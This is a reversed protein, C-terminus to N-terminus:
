NSSVCYKFGCISCNPAYSIGCLSYILNNFLAIQYESRERSVRQARPISGETTPYERQEYPVRSAGRILSGKTTHSKSQEQTPSAVSTHTNRENTLTARKPLTPYERQENIFPANKINPTKTSIQPDHLQVYRMVIPTKKGM